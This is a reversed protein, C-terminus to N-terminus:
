EQRDATSLSPAAGTRWRAPAGEVTWLLRSQPLVECVTRAEESRLVVRVALGNRADARVRSARGIGRVIGFVSLLGTAAVATAYLAQLAGHNIMAKGRAVAVAGLLVFFGGARLPHRWVGNALRLLEDREEPTLLRVVRHTGADETTIRQLPLVLEQPAKEDQVQRLRGTALAVTFVLTGSQPPVCAFVRAVDEQDAVDSVQFAVLRPDLVESRLLRARRYGDLCKLIGLVTGPLSAFLLAAGLPKWLGAQMWAIGLGLPLLPGLVVWAISRAISRRMDSRVDDRESDSMLREAIQPAGLCWLNSRDLM